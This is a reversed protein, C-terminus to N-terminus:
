AAGRNREIIARLREAMLVVMTRNMSRRNDHAIERILERFEMPYRLQTIAWAIGKDM